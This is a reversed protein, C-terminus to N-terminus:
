DRSRREVVYEHVPGTAGDAIGLDRTGFGTALHRLHAETSSPASMVLMEIACGVAAGAPSRRSRCAIWTTHFRSTILKQRLLVRMITVNTWGSSNRNTSPVPSELRVAPEVPSRSKRANTNGPTIAIVASM